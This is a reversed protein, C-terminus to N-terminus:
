LCERVLKTHRTKKKKKQAKSYLKQTLHYSERKSSSGQQEEFHSCWNILTQQIFSNQTLCSVNMWCYENLAQTDLMIRHALLVKTFSVFIGAQTPKYELVPHLGYTFKFYSCQTTHYFTIQARSFTSCSRPNSYNSIPHYTVNGESHPYCNLLDSPNLQMFM